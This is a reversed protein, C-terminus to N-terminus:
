VTWTGTEDALSATANPFSGSFTLLKNAIVMGGQVGVLYYKATADTFATDVDVIEDTQVPVFASNITLPTTRGTATIDVKYVRTLVGAPMEIVDSVVGAPTIALSFDPAYDTDFGGVQVYLGMSKNKWTFVDHYIRAYIGYGDINLAALAQEGSLVKTKAYKVVHACAGKAVIIFDISRGGNFFYGGNNRPTYNEHFRQPPVVILKRGNFSAVQFSVEHDLKADVDLRRQVEPSEQLCYYYDTSCFVIQNQTPVEHDSLWKFGKVLYSLPKTTDLGTGGGARLDVYNGYGYGKVDAALKSFCYADVDPVMVNRQIDVLSTALVQGATEENDMEEIPWVGARDQSIEKSEWKASQAALPYGFTGVGAAGEGEVMINNRTYNGLGTYTKNLIKVVRANDMSFQIDGKQPDLLASMSEEKYVQDFWKTDFRTILSINNAIISTPM